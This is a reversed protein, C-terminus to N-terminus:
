AVRIVQIISRADATVSYTSGASTTYTMPVTLVNTGDSEFVACLTLSYSDLPTISSQNRWVVVADKAVGTNGTITEAGVNADVYLTGTVLWVGKPVTYAAMPQLLAGSAVPTTNIPPTYVSGISGIPYSPPHILTSNDCSVYSM